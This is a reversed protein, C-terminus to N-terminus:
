PSCFTIFYFDFVVFYIFLDDTTECNKLRNLFWLNAVHGELLSGLSFYVSRVNTPYFCQSFPPSSFCTGALFPPPVRFMSKGLLEVFSSIMLLNVLTNKGSTFLVDFPRQRLLTVICIAVKLPFRSSSKHTPVSSVSLPTQLSNPVCGTDKYRSVASRLSTIRPKYITESKHLNQKFPIIHTMGGPQPVIQSATLIYTCM